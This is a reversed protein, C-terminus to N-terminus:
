MEEGFHRAVRLASQVGDEHFGYGWYAGCFFTRNPGNLEDHRAQQAMGMLDYQPHAYNCRGLIREQDLSATRNLTVLYRESAPLNQLRNMDYTLAAPEHADPQRHYNWSAWAARRRPMIATDTHLAVDNAAYPFAGVIEREQATPEELMALAQDSHCALIVQDFTEFQTRPTKIEVHDAHRRICTVPSNLRISEQYPATIKEVYQISGGSITRWVPRDKLSLLGHNQFFRLFARAPFAGMQERSGSWISEAMPFLHDDQFDKSYGHRKLYTQLDLDLDAESAELLQTGEKYFRLVERIMRWFGPRVLNRRQALLKSLEPVGYELGSADNRFSFSMDSAQTTVGLQDILRCFGPYTRQNYVIFGTDVGMTGQPDEVNVTHAHGGIYDNAEFVTIDHRRSLLYAATMGAIGTGVIAIRGSM